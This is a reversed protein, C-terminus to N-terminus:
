LIASEEDAFVVVRKIMRLFHSYRKKAKNYIGFHDLQDVRVEGSAHIILGEELIIGVHIIKGEENSFFALDGLMAQQVFDVTDGIGAQQYADRPMRVGFLKFVNQVYGSCDIGFPSRGGWLYPASLFKLAIKRLLEPKLKTQEPSITQGSYRLRTKGLKLSIGDFNPLTSGLLVPISKHDGYIPACLDLTYARKKMLKLYEKESVLRLQKRDVWGEYGDWELMVRCWDNHKKTIMVCLEGFLM